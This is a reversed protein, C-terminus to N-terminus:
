AVFLTFIREESDVVTVLGRSLFTSTAEDVECAALATQGLSLWLNGRHATLIKGLCKLSTSLLICLPIELQRRLRM